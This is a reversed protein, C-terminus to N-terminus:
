LSRVIRAAISEEREAQKPEKRIQERNQPADRAPDWYLIRGCSECTFIREQNSRDRLENWMQPRVKMRCASCQGDVGEAVATGRQKAVRDYTALLAESAGAFGTRVEARKAELEKIRAAGRELTEAARVRERELTAETAAASERARLLEAEFSESRVMSDLEADERGRVEGALFGLEKELAGAQASTTVVDMQKRLRASKAQLDTVDSELGRRLKEEAAVAEELRVQEAQAAASRAAVGAVHRPVAEREERLRKLEVDLAQLAILKAVDPHM